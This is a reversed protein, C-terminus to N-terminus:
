PKDIAAPQWTLTIARHVCWSVSFKCCLVLWVKNGGVICSGNGLPGLPETVWHSQLPGGDHGFLFHGKDFWQQISMIYTWNHTVKLSPFPELILELFVVQGRETMWSLWPGAGDMRVAAGTAPIAVAQDHRLLFHNSLMNNSLFNVFFVLQSGFKSDFVWWTM